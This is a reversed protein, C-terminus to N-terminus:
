KTPTIVMIDGEKGELDKKKITLKDVPEVDKAAAEKLFADLAKKDGFSVPIIVKPELSVALSYADKASLMGNDGVPVFLIDIEDIQELGENPIDKTALAGLFCVNISDVGFSYITNIRDEGGYKSKTEIGRIFIGSREYEGPGSIVFPEKGGFVVQERGNFDRDNISILCLDAGFKAPSFNKSDKSVPNVAIVTDGFQIKFFSAGLYTLIM